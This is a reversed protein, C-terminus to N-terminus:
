KSRRGLRYDDFQEALDSIGTPCRIGELPDDRVSNREWEASNGSQIVIQVKEQEGLTLKELPRLVGNEYIAQVVHEM